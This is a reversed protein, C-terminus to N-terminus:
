FCSDLNFILQRCGFMLNWWGLSGFEDLYEEVIDPPSRSSKLVPCVSKVLITKIHHAAIKEIAGLSKSILQESNAQDLRCLAIHCFFDHWVM